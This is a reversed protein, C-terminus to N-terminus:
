SEGAIAEVMKVQGPITDVNGIPKMKLRQYTDMYSQEVNAYEGCIVPLNEAQFHKVLPLDLDFCRQPDKSASGGIIVVADIPVGYTGSPQLLNLQQLYEINEFNQGSIVGEAIEQALSRLLNRKSTDALMFKAALLKRTDLQNVKSYETLVTQSVVEAGAEKLTNIWNQDSKFQDLQIIAIKQGSLKGAILDPLLQKEFEVSVNLIKQTNQANKVAENKQLRIDELEMRINEYIRDHQQVIAENINNGLTTAGIMIGLGLAVFVAVISAIHYKYDIIM